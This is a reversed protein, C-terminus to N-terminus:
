SEADAGEEGRLREVELRVTAAASIAFLIDLVADDCKYTDDPVAVSRPEAVPEGFSGRLMAFEIRSKERKVRPIVGIDGLARMSCRHLANLILRGACGHDSEMEERLMRSIPGMKVRVKERLNFRQMVDVAGEKAMWEALNTVAANFKEDRTPELGRVVRDIETRYYTTSLAVITRDVETSEDGVKTIFAGDDLVDVSVDLDRLSAVIGRAREMRERREDLLFEVVEKRVLDIRNRLSILNERVSDEGQYLHLFRSFLSIGIKPLTTDPQVDLGIERAGLVISEAAARKVDKTLNM